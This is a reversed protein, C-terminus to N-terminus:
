STLSDRCLDHVVRLRDRKEEEYESVDRDVKTKEYHTMMVSKCCELAKLSDYLSKVYLQTEEYCLSRNFYGHTYEGGRLEIARTFDRIAEEHRNTRYYISGRNNHAQVDCNDLRIVASYDELALKFKGASVLAVGRNYYALAYTPDIEIAMGYDQLANDLQSLMRHRLARNNFVLAALKSRDLSMQTLRNLILTFRDVIFQENLELSSSSSSSSSLSPRILYLQGFELLLMKLPFLSFHDHKKAREFDHIMLQTQDPPLQAM